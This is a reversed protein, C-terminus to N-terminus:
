SRGGPMPSLTESLAIIRSAPPREFFVGHSPGKAPSMGRLFLYYVGGFHQEYDYGPLRRQLYRHLAVLYLHYQLYYHGHAMVSPLCESRYADIESGLYNSKYDALYWRGDKRMVLDIYGKLLGELPAFGLRAVRDAYSPLLSASPHARFVEALRSATAGSGTAHGLPFHFALEDLRGDIDALCFDRDGSGLPTQVIARVANTVTEQWSSVSFGFDRLSRETPRALAEPSLDDFPLDELLAHFFNGAKTGGPFDALLSREGSAGAAHERASPSLDLDPLAEDQEREDDISV